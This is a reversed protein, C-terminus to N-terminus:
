LGNERADSEFSIALMAGFFEVQTRWHEREGNTSNHASAGRLRSVAERYAQLQSLTIAAFEFEVIM